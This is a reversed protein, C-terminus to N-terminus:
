PEDELKPNSSYTNDSSVNMKQIFDVFEEFSKRKMPNQNWCSEILESFEKPTEKPIEEGTGTSIAKL